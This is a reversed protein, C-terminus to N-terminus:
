RKPRPKRLEELLMVARDLYFTVSPHSRDGARFRDLTRIEGDVKMLLAPFSIQLPAHRDAQRGIGYTKAWARITKDGVCAFHMATEIRIVESPLMPVPLKRGGAIGRKMEDHDLLSPAFCGDAAGRPNETAIITKRAVM